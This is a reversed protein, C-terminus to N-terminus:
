TTRTTWTRRSRCTSCRVRRSTSPSGAFKADRVIGVIRFTGANEPADLGFHQDIPDEDSKFFRKVFAENVIAVPATTENDAATFSRGRLPLMGFNQLYNASVRDWSAGSNEGLKAPPHGAM